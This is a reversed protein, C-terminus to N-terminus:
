IFPIAQEKRFFEPIRGDTARWESAFKNMERLMNAFITSDMYRWPLPESFTSNPMVNYKNSLAKVVSEYSVYVDRGQMDQLILVDMRKFMITIHYDTDPHKYVFLYSGDKGREERCNLVDNTSTLPVGKSEFFANIKDVASGMLSWENDHVYTDQFVMVANLTRVMIEVRRKDSM